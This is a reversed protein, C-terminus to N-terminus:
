IIHTIWRNDEDQYTKYTHEENCKSCLWMTYRSKTGFLRGALKWDHVCGDSHLETPFEAPPQSSNKTTKEQQKSLELKEKELALKEKEIQNSADIAYRLNDALKNIADAIAYTSM